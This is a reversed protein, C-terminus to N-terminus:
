CYLSARERRRSSTESVAMGSTVIRRRAHEALAAGARSGDCAVARMVVDELQEGQVASDFKGRVPARGGDNGRKGGM